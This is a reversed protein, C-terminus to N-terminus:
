MMRLPEIWNSLDKVWNKSYSLEQDWSHCSAWILLIRTGLCLFVRPLLLSFISVIYLCPSYLICVNIPIVRESDCTKVRLEQSFNNGHGRSVKGIRSQAFDVNTKIESISKWQKFSDKFEMREAETLWEPIGTLGLGRQYSCQACFAVLTSELILLGLTQTSRTRLAASKWLSWHNLTFTIEHFGPSLDLASSAEEQPCVQIDTDGPFYTWGPVHEKCGLLSQISCRLSTSHYTFCSAVRSTRSNFYLMCQWMERSRM